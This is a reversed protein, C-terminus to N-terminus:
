LLSLIDEELTVTKALNHIAGKKDSVTYKQHVSNLDITRAKAVKHFLCMKLVKLIWMRKWQQYFM